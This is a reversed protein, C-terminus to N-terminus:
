KQTRWKPIHVRYIRGETTEPRALPRLEAEECSVYVLISLSVDITSTFLLRIDSGTADGQILSAPLCKAAGAEACANAFSTFAKESDVMSFYDYQQVIDFPFVLPLVVSLTCRLAGM